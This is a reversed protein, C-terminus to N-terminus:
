SAREFENDCEQCVAVLDVACRVITCGCDWKKMKTEAKAKGSGMKMRSVSFIDKKLKLKKCIFLQIKLISYNLKSIFSSLRLPDDSLPFSLTKNNLINCVKQKMLNHANNILQKGATKSSTPLM